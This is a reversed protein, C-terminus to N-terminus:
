PKIGQRARDHLAALGSLLTLQQIPTDVNHSHFDYGHNPQPNETPHLGCGNGPCSINLWGGKSAVRASFRLDTSKKGLMNGLMCDYTLRMAAVVEPIDSGSSSCNDLWKVLPVSYKGWLSGGHLDRRTITEVVLLQPFPASTEVDSKRLLNFLVTLSASIIFVRAPNYQLTRKAGSGSIRIINPIEIVFEKFNNREGVLKLVENFGFGKRCDLTGCFNKLRFEGLFSVVMPHKQSVPESNKVFDKHIRVMIAARGQHPRWALEYWCPRM